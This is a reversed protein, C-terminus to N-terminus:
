YLHKVTNCIFNIFSLKNFLIGNSYSSYLELNEYFLNEYIETIGAYWLLILRLFKLVGVFQQPRNVGAAIMSPLFVLPVISYLAFNQHPFKSLYNSKLYKVSFTKVFPWQREDYVRLCQITKLCNSPNFKLPKVPFHWFYWFKGGDFKQVICCVHGSKSWLPM